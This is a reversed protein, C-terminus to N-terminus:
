VVWIEGSQCVRERCMAQGSQPGETRLAVNGRGDALNKGFTGSTRYTGRDGKSSLGAQANLNIGEFDRKLIFNVVGAMADSGYVASSGGTVIDVRDLLDTPITNTDIEFYGEQSTIHRRGNVLVLTRDVGLGRLDLLNLGATGIYQTSNSQSFSSRLSPLDNLVDGVNTQGRRTLDTATVTTVPIPSLDSSCGDSIWDSISIEYAM